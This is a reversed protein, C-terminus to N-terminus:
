IRRIELIDWGENIDPYDMTEAMREIVSLPIVKGSDEAERKEKRELIIEMPVDFFILKKIYEKPLQAIAKCRKSKGLNTQDWIINDRRKIAAQLDERMKRNAEKIYDEFIDNYTLNRKRAEQEILWDTSYIRASENCAGAVALTSKGSFPLGALMVFQKNIM